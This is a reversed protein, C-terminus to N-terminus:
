KRWKYKGELIQFLLWEILMADNANFKKRKRAENIKDLAYVIAGQNFGEASKLREYAKPNVILEKEGSVGVLMDRLLIETISIFETADCKLASIKTSYELVNRSSKMNILMDIATEINTNLDQDHYNKYAKSVTGDGCSVAEFLRELDPCDEKLVAKLTKDSFTPIEIKRVRSKVTQLLPYESTAGLIIYVNKPPEELTKLLKNQASANMTEARDIIFIKKDTEIPKIYSESILDIIDETLVSEGAPYIKLDPFGKDILRCTRCEGCPNGDKCLIISAFIKLYELLSDQDPCVILYAHSLRNSEKEGTFMKYANTSKLLSLFDVM